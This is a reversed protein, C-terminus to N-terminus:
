RVIRGADPPTACSHRQLMRSLRGERDRRVFAGDRTPALFGTSVLDTLLTDCSERDLGLLRQAQAPTLKLGPIEWYEARLRHLTNEPSQSLQSPM